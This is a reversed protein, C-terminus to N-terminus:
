VVIRRRRREHYHTVPGLDFRDADVYRKLDLNDLLSKSIVEAM